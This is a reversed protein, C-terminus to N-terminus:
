VVVEENIVYPVRIHKSYEADRRQFQEEQNELLKNTQKKQAELIRRTFFESDGVGREDM